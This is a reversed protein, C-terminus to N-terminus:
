IHILSLFWMPMPAAEILGVLAAFDNRARATEERLRSLEGQSDSFDFWWVLAAGGSAIVPDALQGRVALSKVSGKPTVVMSFPAATKQARRVAERLDRLDEEVLGGELESLYGPLVDLGLWKALRDPGEIKGDGRVLLPIAPADDIMRSLRRVTNRANRAARARQLSGVVLWVAGFTWAALMLGLLATSPLTLEM